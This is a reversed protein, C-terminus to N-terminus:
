NFKKQQKIQTNYIDTSKQASFQGISYAFLIFDKDLFNALSKKKCSMVLYSNKIATKEIYVSCLM